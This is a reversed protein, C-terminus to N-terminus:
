TTLRRSAMITFLFISTICITLLYSIVFSISPIVSVTPFIMNLPSYKLAGEINYLLISFAFYLVFPLAFTIYRNAFISSICLGVCSWAAGFLFAFLLLFALVLVGGGVFQINEFITKEFLTSFTAPVDALIYPKGAIMALVSLILTPVACAIGGSIVCLAIKGWIYKVITTRTLIFKVFGSNLEDCFIGSAPLVVLLPAFFNFSGNFHSTYILHLYTLKEQSKVISELNAPLVLMATGVIISLIMARSFICNKLQLM